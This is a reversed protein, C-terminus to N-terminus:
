VKCLDLEADIKNVCKAQYGSFSILHSMLVKDM